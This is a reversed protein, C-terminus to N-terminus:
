QLRQNLYSRLTTQALKFFRLIDCSEEGDCECEKAHYGVIEELSTLMSSIDESETTALARGIFSSLESAEKDSGHRIGNNVVYESFGHLINHLEPHMSPSSDEESVQRMIASLPIVRSAMKAQPNEVPQTDVVLIAGRSEFMQLLMVNHGAARIYNMKEELEVGFAHLAGDRRGRGRPPLEVTYVKHRQPPMLEDKKKTM